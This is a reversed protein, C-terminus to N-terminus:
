LLTPINYVTYIVYLIHINIVDIIFINVKFALVLSYCFVCHVCHEETPRLNGSHNWLRSQGQRLGPEQPLIRYSLSIEAPREPRRLHETMRIDSVYFKIGVSDMNIIIYFQSVTIDREKKIVKLQRYDLYADLLYVTWM